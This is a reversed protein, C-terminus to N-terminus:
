GREIMERIRAALVDMAFPKTILEMGPELFGSAVAATEAYGTMFLVKLDRRTERAADAMQRGNLGPLGIDTVLLDVRVPSQLIELGSPGDGAELACYGLENLVEVILARVVAEDEVVLVVEGEEAKQAGDLGSSAEEPEAGDRCRPLYLKVTTGRGVESYIKAYGESQRAFGYIMSLGLGTGQGIPKTTFFPDFARAMVDPTMGTGTDTVCLCVYEGPKVERQRAAFADDLQANGTEITLQGGDPMADRANIVLNLIASELQNPDCLTLWLGDDLALDLEITEGLTRRLLDEMSAILQNAEVPRPDLPQRRSFALLRHTLAVARNASAMATQLFRGIEDHRGVSLRKEALNLSGVIGQLLNNFDHAIGGTLQGVAEMKQSQRLAEEAQQLERTRLEVQEELTVNFRRLANEAEVRETVDSGAIFIGIVQSDGDLIPQYVFDLFREETPANAGRKLLVSQARGVVAKATQSVHDLLEFFGQGEIEPLAERVTKGIVDRHGVLQLYSGNALEFVHDPGRVIALFIPAQEFLRRLHETEALLQRNTAKVAEREAQLAQNAQRLATETTQLRRTTLVTQTTEICACFIGAVRGSENRIPSYSFSFYTNETYGHRQMVLKRDELWTAEGALARVVYPLIDDWIDSWLEQFPQGLAGPHKAGLIPRYADNFLFTLERGWAIFMPHGSNLIISVATRLSQPWTEPRGLPSTSWDYARMLAGMEGGGALFDASPVDQSFAPPVIEPFEDKPKM